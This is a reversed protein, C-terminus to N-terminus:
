RKYKTAKTGPAKVAVWASIRHMLVSQPDQLAQTTLPMKIQQYGTMSLSRTSRKRSEARVLSPLDLTNIIDLMPSQFGKNFSKRFVEANDESFKPDIL